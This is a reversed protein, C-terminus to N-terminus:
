DKTTRGMDDVCLHQHYYEYCYPVGTKFELHINSLANKYIRNDEKTWSDQPAHDAAHHTNIRERQHGAAYLHDIHEHRRQEMKEDGPMGPNLAEYEAM